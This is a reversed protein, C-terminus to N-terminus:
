YLSALNTGVYTDHIMRLLGTTSRIAGPNGDPGYLDRMYQLIQAQFAPVTYSQSQSLGDLSVSESGVGLPRAMNSAHVLIDVAALKAIAEVVERPLDLPDMGAVYDVEFLNPLYTLGGYILPLFDGGAGIIMSALPGKTPVIHVQGHLRELQLWEVPFTQIVSGVPYVARVESVSRLPSHFLSIFSFTTYDTLRYDHRESVITAELVSVDTIKELKRVANQMHTEYFSDPLEKGTEDTLRFGVLYNSKLWQPTLAALGITTNGNALTM